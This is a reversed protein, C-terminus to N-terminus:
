GTRVTVDAEPPVEAQINTEAMELCSDSLESVDLIIATINNTINRSAFGEINPSPTEESECVEDTPSYSGVPGPYGAM